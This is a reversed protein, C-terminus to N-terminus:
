LGSRDWSARPSRQSFSHRGGGGNAMWEFYRATANVKRPDAVTSGTIVIPTAFPVYQAARQAAMVLAGACANILDDHQNPPHDISDKGGRATRRELSCLQAIMKRNDLLELRGSNLMPLMTLYSESKTSPSCTYDCGYHAFRERPWIGGYRDGQVSAIGYSRITAGFEKVVDDPSFPPKREILCDLIVRNGEVHCIALTMSDSSGGSPDCFAVYCVNEIRPLVIRGPMVAADVTERSVFAEVDSRFEAGYEAAADLPDREYAEDIVRQPVSPNMVRTPAKWVLTNGDQGYYKRYADWMVGRKAYPSSACLLVAGSITAMAPRIANLVERDPNVSDDSRWFAIEDALIAGLAYGRTTKVSAVHIEITTSNNLDFADATEREIMRALMPTNKLLGSVFRFITRSQRRDASIIALTCRESPQLHKRYDKFCALYVACLALMFSKGSRRGCILWAENSPTTPPAERGTCQKFLALQDPTMPLGFLAALFAHWASWTGRKFWPAFLHKDAVAQLITVAPKM